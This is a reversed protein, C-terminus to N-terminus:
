GGEGYYHAAVGKITRLSMLGVSRLRQQISQITRQGQSLSGERLVGRRFGDAAVGRSRDQRCQTGPGADLRRQSKAEPCSQQSGLLAAGFRYRQVHLARPPRCAVM